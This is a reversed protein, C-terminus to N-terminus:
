FYDRTRAHAVYSSGHRLNIVAPWLKDNVVSEMERLKEIQMELARLLPPYPMAERMSAALEQELDQRYAEVADLLDELRSHIAIAEPETSRKPNSPQATPEPPPELM